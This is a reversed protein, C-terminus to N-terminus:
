PRMRASGSPRAPRERRTGTDNPSDLFAHIQASTEPAAHLRAEAEAALRADRADLAQKALWVIETNVSRMDESAAQQIRGHIDDPFRVSINVM